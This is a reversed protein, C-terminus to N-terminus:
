LRSGHVLDRLLQRKTVAVPQEPVRAPTRAQVAPASSAAALTVLAVAVAGTALLRTM